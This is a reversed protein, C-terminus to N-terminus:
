CSVPESSLAAGFARDLVQHLIAQVTTPDSGFDITVGNPLQLQTAVPIAPPAPPAIKLESFGSAHPRQRKPRRRPAVLVRPSLRRKWHYFSAESIGEGLCFEAVPQHNSSFRNLRDLWISVRASQSVRPMKIELPFDFIKYGVDIVTSM